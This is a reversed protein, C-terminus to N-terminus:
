QQAQGGAGQQCMSDVVAAFADLDVLRKVGVNFGPVPVEGTKVWKRVRSTPLSNEQAAQQITGLRKSM